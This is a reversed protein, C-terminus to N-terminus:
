YQAIAKKYLYTIQSIVLKFSNSIKDNNIPCCDRCHLRHSLLLGNIKINCQRKNGLQLYYIQKVIDNCVQNPGIFKIISPIGEISFSYYYSILLILPLIFLFGIILAVEPPKLIIKFGVLICIWCELCLGYKLLRNACLDYFISDERKFLYYLAYSMELLLPLTEKFFPSGYEISLATVVYRKM